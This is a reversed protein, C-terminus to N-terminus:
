TSPGREGTLNAVIPAIPELSRPHFGADLQVHGFGYERRSAELKGCVADVTGVLVAPSAELEARTVEFQAGIRDLFEGASEADPTVRVLWCNVSLTVDTPGKGAQAAGERVWGIKEHVRAPALDVVAHRGLTGARLRANVGVTAAERGALRLVRPSGGGIFLPPHPRQVPKPLGDLADVEYHEGAFSFPTDGFLGKVIAIAEELRDVRVAAPDLPIGAATYDSTMWGSGMGISLRGESVVDLTAAMRHVLVPHRYDVGLVSPRVRLASTAMAVATLAVMPETDYGDTFHDAVVVEHFGLDELRRVDAVWESIPLRLPPATIAFQM